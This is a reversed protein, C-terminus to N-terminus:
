EPARNGDTGASVLDQEFLGGCPLWRVGYGLCRLKAVIICVDMHMSILLAPHYKALLNEAGDILEGEAGEVDIKIVDPPPFGLSDLRSCKVSLEGDDSLRGMSGSGSFTAPGDRSGLATPCVEINTLRNISVHRKIYGVNEPYPEFAIVKGSPGTLYAFLLSFFGANAGCDYCTMGSQVIEGLTHQTDLEYTGLWCGHTSSGAIWRKGRLPGQLIPVVSSKPIARLPSRCVRGILSHNSLKSFDLM